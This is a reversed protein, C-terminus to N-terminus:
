GVYMDLGFPVDCSSLLNEHGIVVGPIPKVPIPDWIGGHVSCEGRPSWFERRKRTAYGNNLIGGVTVAFDAKNDRSINRLARHQFSGYAELHGGIGDVSVRDAIDHEGTVCLIHMSAELLEGASTYMNTSVLIGFSSSQEGVDQASRCGVEITHNQTKKQIKKNDDSGPSSSSAASETRSVNWARM